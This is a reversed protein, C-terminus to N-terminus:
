SYRILFDLMSGGPSFLISILILDLSPHNLSPHMLSYLGDFSSYPQLLTLM